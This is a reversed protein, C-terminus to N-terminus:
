EVRVGEKEIEVELPLGGQSLFAASVMQKEETLAVVIGGSGGGALKVGFAGVRRGAYVMRELELSSVRLGSLLGHNLDMLKGVAKLDGKEILVMAKRTLDEIVQIVNEIL